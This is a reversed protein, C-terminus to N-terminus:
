ILNKHIIKILIINKSIRKQFLEPNHNISKRMCRFGINNASSSGNYSEQYWSQLQSADSNYAGGRTFYSDDDNKVIEWVNGAMDYNGYPSTSDITELPCILYSCDTECTGACYSITLDSSEVTFEYNPYEFNMTSCWSGVPAQITTSNGYVDNYWNENSTDSALVIFEYTGSDLEITNTLNLNDDIFDPSALAGWGSWGAFDGTVLALDCNYLGDIDFTINYSGNNNSHNSNENNSEELCDDYDLGNFTAVPSTDNGLNLIEPFFIDYNANEISLQNGWPYDYGTNGRAAKEWEYQDPIEMGYHTAFAWAGFWMVGTVPHNVNGEEVEFIEGNWSIKSNSFYLYDYNGAAFNADGPYYGRVKNDYIFLNLSQASTGGRM